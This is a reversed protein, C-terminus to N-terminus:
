LIALWSLECTLNQFLWSVPKSVCFGDAEPEGKGQAPQVLLNTTPLLSPTFKRHLLQELDAGVLSLMSRGGLLSCAHSSFCSAHHVHVYVSVM